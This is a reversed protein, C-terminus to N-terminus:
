ATEDVSVRKSSKSTMEHGAEPSKPGTEAALVSRIVVDVVVNFGPGIDTELAEFYKSQQM